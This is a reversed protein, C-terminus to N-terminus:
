IGVSYSINAQSVSIDSTGDFNVVAIDLTDNEALEFDRTASIQIVGTNVSHPIEFTNVLSIIGNKILLLGIDTSGGGVKEILASFTIPYKKTKKTLNTIQGGTTATARELNDAVFQTGGIIVPTDQSLISVVIPSAINTFGVQANSMSDNSNINDRATVLPSTEDLSSMNMNGTDTSTFTIEEVDFTTGTLPTDVATVIFTGNYTTETTFQDLVVPMNVRLEHSTTTTFRTKGSGNDIVGSITIDQGQLYIDGNLVDSNSISYTSGVFSNPDFFVLSINSPVFDLIRLANIFVNAPRTKSIIKYGVNDIGIFNTLLLFQNIIVTSPNIINMGSLLFVASCSDFIVFNFEITGFFGFGSFTVRNMNCSSSGALNFVTQGLSANIIIDHILFSTILNLPNTNQFMPDNGSYLINTQTTSAYVELASKEGIKFPKTQTFSEDYVVTVAMNDPIELDVGLQNELSEQSTVNIQRSGSPRSTGKYSIGGENFMVNSTSKRINTGDLLEDITVNVM